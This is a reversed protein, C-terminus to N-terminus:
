LVHSWGPLSISLNSSSTPPVTVTLRRSSTVSTATRRSQFSSKRYRRVASTVVCANWSIGSALRPLVGAHLSFGAAKGPPMDGFQEEADCVPLCPRCPSCCRQPRAAAGRRHPLHHLAGAGALRATGSLPWCASRHYAGTAHAREASTPTKVWRFRSSGNAGDVYIGDLFLMYYHINLNLASGFRQILLVTGQAALQAAFAPYHQEIIQYLRTQEPQHYQYHRADLGPQAIRAAPTPLM